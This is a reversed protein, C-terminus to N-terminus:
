VKELISSSLFNKIFMEWIVNLQNDEQKKQAIDIPKELEIDLEFKKQMGDGEKLSNFFSKVNKSQQLTLKGQFCNLNKQLFQTISNIAIKDERENLDPNIDNVLLKKNYIKLFNILNDFLYNLENQSLNELTEGEHLRKEENQFFKIFYYSNKYIREVSIKPPSLYVLNIIELIKPKLLGIADENKELFPFEPREVLKDYDEHFSSYFLIKNNPNKKVFLNDKEILFTALYKLKLVEQVKALNINSAESGKLTECLVDLLEAHYYFPEDITKETDQLTYEFEFNGKINDEFKGYLLIANEEFLTAIPLFTNAVLIQNEIM